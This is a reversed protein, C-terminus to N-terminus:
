RTASCALTSPPRIPTPPWPRSMAPYPPPTPAAAAPAPAAAPPTAPPPAPPTQDDARAAESAMLAIAGSAACALLKRHTMPNNGKPRITFGAGLVRTGRRSECKRFALRERAGCRSARLRFERRWLPGGAQKNRRATAEAGLLHAGSARRVEPEASPPRASDPRLVRTLHLWLLTLDFPAPMHLNRFDDGM